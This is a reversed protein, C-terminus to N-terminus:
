GGGPTRFEETGMCHCKTGDCACHVVDDVWHARRGCRVCVGADRAQEELLVWDEPRDWQARLDPRAMPGEPHFLRQLTRQVAVPDRRFVADNRVIIPPPVDRHGRRYCECDVLAQLEEDWVDGPCFVHRGQTCYPCMAQGRGPLM